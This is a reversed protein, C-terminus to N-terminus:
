KGAAASGGATADTGGENLKTKPANQKELQKWLLTLSGDSERRVIRFAVIVDARKDFDLENYIVGQAARKYEGRYAISRLVYTKGDVAEVSRRYLFGDNEVGKILKRDLELAKQFDTESQLSVLFDVGKTQLNVQELPVEGIKVFVGHLLIGMAQFGGQTLTIDSLRSIRYNKTRFSYSAGAGPMTYALCDATAVVVNTNVDCGKDEILKILGTNPQRLFDAYLALDERKPAVLELEKGTPKRYLLEINQLAIQREISRADPRTRGVNRLREFERERRLYTEMRM